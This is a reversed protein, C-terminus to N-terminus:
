VVTGTTHIIVRHQIEAGSPIPARVAVYERTRNTEVFVKAKYIKGSQLTLDCTDKTVNIIEGTDFDTIEYTINLGESRAAQSEDPLAYKM